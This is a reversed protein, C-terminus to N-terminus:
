VGAVYRTSRFRRRRLRPQPQRSVIVDSNAIVGAICPVKGTQVNPTGCERDSLATISHGLQRLPVPMSLGRQQHLEPSRCLQDSLGFAVGGDSAPSPSLSRPQHASRESCTHKLPSGASGRRPSGRRAAGRDPGAWDDRRCGPGVCGRKGHLLCGAVIPQLGPVTSIAGGPACMQDVRVAGYGEGVPRREM